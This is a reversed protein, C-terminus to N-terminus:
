RNTCSARFLPKRCPRPTAWDTVWDKSSSRMWTSTVSPPGPKSGPATGASLRPRAPSRSRISLRPPLMITREDFLPVRSAIDILVCPISGIHRLRDLNHHDVIMGQEPFPHRAAEGFDAAKLDDAFAAGSLVGNTERPVLRRVDYQKINRHGAAAEVGDRGNEAVARRLADHHQGHRLIALVQGRREM